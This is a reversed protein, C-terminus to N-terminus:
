GTKAITKHVNDRKRLTVSYTLSMLCLKHELRWVIVREEVFTERKVAELIAGASKVLMNAPNM